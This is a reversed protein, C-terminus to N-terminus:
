LFWSCFFNWLTERNCCICSSSIQMMTYFCSPTESMRIEHWSRQIARATRWIHAMTRKMASRNKGTLNTHGSDVFSDTMDGFIIMAIPLSSGHAIALVTGLIM